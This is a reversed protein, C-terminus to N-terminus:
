YMSPYVKNLGLRHDIEALKDQEKARIKLALLQFIADDDEVHVTLIKGSPRQGRVLFTGDNLRQVNMSEITPSNSRM